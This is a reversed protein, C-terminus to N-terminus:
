SRGHAASSSGGATAAAVPAEVPAPFGAARAVRAQAVLLHRRLAEMGLISDLQINLDRRTKRTQSRRMM